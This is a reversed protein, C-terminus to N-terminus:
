QKRYKSTPHMASLRKTMEVVRRRLFNNAKSLRVVRENLHEIWEILEGKSAV